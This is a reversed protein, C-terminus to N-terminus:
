ASDIERKFLKDFKGDAETSNYSCQTYEDATALAVPVMIATCAFSFCFISYNSFTHIDIKKAYIDMFDVDFWGNDKSIFHM